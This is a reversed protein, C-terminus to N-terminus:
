ETDKPQKHKDFTRQIFFMLIINWLMLAIGQFYKAQFIAAIGGMLGFMACGGGLYGIIKTSLHM